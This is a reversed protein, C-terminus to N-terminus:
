LEDLFPEVNERGSELRENLIAGKPTCLNVVERVGQIMRNGSDKHGYTPVLANCLITPTNWNFQGFDMENICSDYVQRNRSYISAIKGYHIEEAYSFVDEIRNYPVFTINPGLIEDHLFHSNSSFEKTLHISPSVYYGPHEKEIAKGRMIVEIGERHSMGMYLLYKDLADKDLLPGMFPPNDSDLPHGIRIRKALQHFSQVFQDLIDSHLFVLSTSGCRQGASYYAAALHDYLAHEINIDKDIISVNNASLYLSPNKQLDSRTSKLIAKGNETSGTFIVNKIERCQILRIAMEKMGHILSISGAPFNAKHFCSMILQSTYCTKESPKLITANGAILSSVIHPISSLLPYIANSIVLSPGSSYYGVEAPIHNASYSTSPIEKRPFVKNELFSHSAELIAEAIQVTSNFEDRSDWQPKGTDLSISTVIQEQEAKLNTLFSNLLETKQNIHFNKWQRHGSITSEILPNIHQYDVPASWLSDNLNAPCKKEIFIETCNPGTTPPLHYEGGFYNGLINFKM